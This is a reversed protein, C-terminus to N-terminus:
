NYEINHDSINPTQCYLNASLIINIIIIKNEIIYYFFVWNIDESLIIINKGVKIYYSSCTVFPIFVFLHQNTPRDTNLLIHIYIRTFTVFVIFVFLHQNTRQDGYM